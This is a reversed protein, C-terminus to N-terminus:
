NVLETLKQAIKNLPVIEDAIGQKIVSDPMSSIVCSDPSQAIVYGGLDKLRKLSDRGDHGMGTMIIGLFQYNFNDIISNFTVDVSPKYLSNIPEPTITARIRKDIVCHLGGQAIYANGPSLIQGDEIEQVKIQSMSNLREALSKTFYQPMHQVIVIPTPFNRPILPIVDQLSKPGGTSIGIGVIKVNLNTPKSVKNYFQVTKNIPQNSHQVKKLLRQKTMLDKLTQNNGVARIKSILEDKISDMESFASKKTIFDVAGLSFAEITANAGEKTLTSVMIVPIPYENMIAKLSELGTMVPMEIDMTIVDPKLRMALEYGEKGDKAMGIVEIDETTIISSLAKRMFFSDDVILVKVKNM